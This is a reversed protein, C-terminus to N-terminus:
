VGARDSELFRILFLGALTLGSLLLFGWDFSGADGAIGIVVPILGAGLLHAFPIVLAVAVNRNEKQTIRSLVAFGLPFFCVSSVAQLILGGGIWDAPAAVLLLTAVGSALVVSFLIRRLGLRDSLWGTILPAGFAVIRSLFILRNAHTPSLGREATLYLPMMSFVGQNVGLALSFLLILAWTAPNRLFSLFVEPRPPTGRFDGTPRSVAFILGLVISAAGYVTLVMRWDYRRMLLEAILPSCIYALNPALQQIALVKGWDAKRVAGTLTAVGSPLYLGGAVGLGMLALRLAWPTGSRGCMILAVGVAVSSGVIMKRHCFRASFFPSGFLGLGYGLSVLLFLSGAEAHSLPLDREIPPMLPALGLRSLMNIFFISVIFAVVPGAESLARGDGPDTPPM